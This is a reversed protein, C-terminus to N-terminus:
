NIDYKEKLWLKIKNLDCKKYDEEFSKIDFFKPKKMKSTKFFVYDGKKSKRISINGNIERVLNSGEELFPKVEEFTINEIPRNGLQKLTKSNDGWTIYLGFKGKKLVVDQEEYNGLIISNTSTKNKNEGNEILDELKYEGNELKSMNLQLDKKLAKYSTVKKNDIIEITKITPGYKGITYTNNEDIKINFKGINDKKLNDIMEDLKNNCNRCLDHWIYEGKSIKDVKEEM